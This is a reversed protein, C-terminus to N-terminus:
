NCSIVVRINAASGRGQCLINQERAFRVIDHVTLFYYEYELEEILVLEKELLEETSQAVGEPWRQQKGQTVLNRLHQIPTLGVPECGSVLQATTTDMHIQAGVEEALANAFVV